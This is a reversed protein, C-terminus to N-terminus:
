HQPRAALLYRLDGGMAEGFFSATRKKGTLLNAALLLRMGSASDPAQKVPWRREGSGPESETSM